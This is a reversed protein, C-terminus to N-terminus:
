TTITSSQKGLHTSSGLIGQCFHQTCFITHNCYALHHNCHALYYSCHVLYHSCHSSCLKQTSPSKSSCLSGLIIEARPRDTISTLSYNHPINELTKGMETPEAPEPYIDAVAWDQPQGDVSAMQHAMSGIPIAM